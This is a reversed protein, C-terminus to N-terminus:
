TGVRRVATGFLQMTFASLGLASRDLDFNMQIGIVADAGISAAQRKLQEVCVAFAVPFAQFNAVSDGFIAVSLVETNSIAQVDVGLKKAAADLTGKMNTTLTYVPGLTIFSESLLTTSVVVQAPYVKRREPMWKAFIVGCKPCVPAPAPLKFSCKPCDTALAENM